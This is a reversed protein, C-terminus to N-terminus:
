YMDACSWVYRKDTSVEMREMHELIDDQYEEATHRSLEDALAKQRLKAASRAREREAAVRAFTGDDDEHNDVFYSDCYGYGPFPQHQHPRNFAM